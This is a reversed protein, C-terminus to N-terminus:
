TGWKSIPYTPPVYRYHHPEFQLIISYGSTLSIQTNGSPSFHTWRCLPPIRPSGTTPFQIPPVNSIPTIPIPYYSPFSTRLTDYPDATDCHVHNTPADHLQTNSTPQQRTIFRVWPTLRKPHIVSPTESNSSQNIEKYGRV